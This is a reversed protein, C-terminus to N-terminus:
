ANELREIRARLDNIQTTYVATLEKAVEVAKNYILADLTANNIYGKNRQIVVNKMANNATYPELVSNDSVGFVLGVIKNDVTSYLDKINSTDYKFWFSFKSETNKKLYVEILGNDNVYISVKDGQQLNYTPTIATSIIVETSPNRGAIIESIKGSVHGGIGMVNMKNDFSGRFALWYFKQTAEFTLKYVGKFDINSNYSTPTNAFSIMGNALTCSSNSGKGIFDTSTLTSETADLSPDFGHEIESMEITTKKNFLGNNKIMKKVVRPAVVKTYADNGFHSAPISSTNPENPHMGNVANSDTTRPIEVYTKPNWNRYNDWITQCQGVSYWYAVTEVNYWLDKDWIGKFVRKKYKGNETENFYRFFETTMANFATLHLSANASDAEGQIWIVGGFVNEDNLDLAYKIRDRMAFFYASQTGWTYIGSPSNPKMTTANYDSVGNGRATTFGTGGYATNVFLIEYDEPVENLLLNGLPLHIGKTGRKSSTATNYKNRMDQLSHAHHGLEINKLNDNDYIGLQRIRKPSLNKSIVDNVPSEDYGVSNSQGAVCIIFSKTPKTYLIKDNVEQVADDTYKKADDLEDQLGTVDSIDIPLNTGSGNGVFNDSVKIKGDVDKVITVGDIQEDININSEINHFKGQSADYLLKDLSTMLM